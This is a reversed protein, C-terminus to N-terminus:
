LLLKNYFELHNKGITEWNWNTKAYEYNEQGKSSKSYTIGDEFKTTLTTIDDTNFVLNNTENLIYGVNGKNPGIVPKKFYFAMPVNGSNLINLRPILIIDAANFYYQIKDIATFEQNWQIKNTSLRKSKKKTIYKYLPFKIFDLFRYLLIENNYYGRPIILLKDKHNLQKFAKIIFNEEKINRIAGFALIVFTNKDINLFNRASKKDIINPINNYWGHPIITHEVNKKPYHIKYEDLSYKAMHIIGSANTNILDYLQKFGKENENSQVNHRTYVIKSGQKKLFDLRTKIKKLRGLYPPFSKRNVKYSLHEPWHIHIIDFSNEDSWFHSIGTYVDALNQISSVLNTIFTNRETENAVILIKM